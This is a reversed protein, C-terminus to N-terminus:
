PRLAQLLAWEEMTFKKNYFELDLLDRGALRDVHAIYKTLLGRMRVIEAKLADNENSMKVEMARREAPRIEVNAAEVQWPKPFAARTVDEMARKVQEPTPARERWTRMYAEFEANM